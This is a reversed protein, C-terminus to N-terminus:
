EENIRLQSLLLFAHMIRNAVTNNFGGSRMLGHSTLNRLNWGYQDTFLNKFYTNVDEGLAAKAENSNILGDLSIYENGKEPEQNARLINGGCLAVMRRISAEFQPILLHCAVIYDKQFYAAIGRKIIDINEKSVLPSGEFLQIAIEETLIKKEEMKKIELQLFPATILMRRYMGNMLKQHEADKGVGVNTLPVGAGDYNTTRVIDMLPSQEAEEKQRQREINMNPTNWAFFKMLVDHPTGKIFDEMYAELQINEIPISFKHETMCNIAKQGLDHIEVYLRNAEKNLNYKRYLNQIRQLMAQAWMGGRLNFSLRIVKAFREIHEKIKDTCGIKIYYDCLLETQDFLIHGTEDTKAGVSIAKSELRCFRQENEEVLKDKFTSYSDLYKLMIEFHRGWLGPSNDDAVRHDYDWLVKQAREFLNINKTMKAIEFARSMFYYGEVPHKPYDGDVTDLIATAYPLIIEHYDPKSNTVKKIFDFVLGAYRMRMMPNNTESVRKTWYQIDEEKIEKIDPSLIEEGTDKRKWTTLPGYYTGWHEKGTNDQFSFALIESQSNPEDRVTKPLHGLDLSVDHYSFKKKNPNDYISLVDKLTEM